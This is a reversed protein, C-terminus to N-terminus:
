RRRLFRDRAESAVVALGVVVLALAVLADELASM